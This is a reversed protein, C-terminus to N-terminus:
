GVHALGLDYALATLEARRRRGTKERIRDLHSQATRMSIGLREGIERDTCGAAVCTLVECERPSLLNPPFPEEPLYTGGNAILGVLEVLEEAGRTGSLFGAAGADLAERRRAPRAFCLVRAGAAVIAAIEAGSLGGGLGVVAVDPPPGDLVM